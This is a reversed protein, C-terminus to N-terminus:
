GALPERSRGSRFALTLYGAALPPILFALHQVVAIGVAVEAPVGVLRYIAYVTGEYVGLNAPAVPVLTTIALAAAVLLASGASPELGFALQIAVIAAVEAAKKALALVVVRWARDRQRLVDLHQGLAIVRAVLARARGPRQLLRDRLVSWQHALPLMVLLLLMVAMVLAMVGARLGAPLPVMVTAALILALKAVGVMLQDLALVSLAAGRPLGARTILLAVASAEGAFFPVSNLVAASVTVVELMRAFAVRFAAPTLLRWEAAWMPLIAANAVVAAVLWGAHIGRAYQVALRWPLDAAALMLAVTLAIWVLVLWRRGASVRMPSAPATM